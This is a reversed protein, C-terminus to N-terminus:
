FYGYKNISAFTVSLFVVFLFRFRASYRYIASYIGTFCSDIHPIKAAKMGLDSPGRSGWWKVFKMRWTLVRSRRIRCFFNKNQSKQSFNDVSPITSNEIDIVNALSKQKVLFSVTHGTGAMSKKKGM